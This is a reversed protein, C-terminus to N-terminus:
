SHKKMGCQKCVITVLIQHTLHEFEKESCFRYIYEEIKRDDFEIIKGCKECVIHEHHKHGLTHEYRKQKDIAKIERVLGAELLVPLTRYVSAKSMNIGRKMLETYIDDANFHDHRRYIEELIATRSQTMRGGSKRIFDALSKEQKKM